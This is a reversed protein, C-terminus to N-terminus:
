QCLSIYLVSEALASASLDKHNPQKPATFEEKLKYKTKENLVVYKWADHIKEGERRKGLIWHILKGDSKFVDHIDKERQDLM